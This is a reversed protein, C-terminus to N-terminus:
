DNAVEGKKSKKRIIYIVVGAAVVAVVAVLIIIDKLYSGSDDEAPIEEDDEDEDDPDEESDRNGGTTIGDFEDTFDDDEYEPLEPPTIEQNVPQGATGPLTHTIEEGVAVVDYSSVIIEDNLVYIGSYVPVDEPVDPFDAVTYTLSGYEGDIYCEFTSGTKKVTVEHWETVQSMETRTLGGELPQDGEPMWAGHNYRVPLYQGNIVGTLTTRPVTSDARWHDLYFILYNNEDVYWVVLGLRDEAETQKTVKMTASVIYNDRYPNVQIAFNMEDDKTDKVMEKTYTADGVLYGEETITWENFKMGSTIWDGVLVREYKKYGITNIEKIDLDLNYAYIGFETCTLGIGSIERGYVLEDNIYLSITDEIKEAKIKLSGALAVNEIEIEKLTLVPDRNQEEDEELYTSARVRAYLKGDKWVLGIRAYNDDDRVYPAIMLESLQEQNGLDIEVDLEITVNKDSIDSTGLLYSRKGLDASTEKAELTVRGQDFVWADKKNGATKWVNDQDDVVTIEDYPSYIAKSELGRATFKVNYGEYGIFYNQDTGKVRKSIIPETMDDLYVYFGISKKEVRITHFETIDFDDPLAYVNTGVPANSCDIWGSLVIEYKTTPSLVLGTQSRRITVDVFNHDDKYWALLGFGFVYDRPETYPKIEDAKFEAKVEYNQPLGNETRAVPNLTFGRNTDYGAINSGSIKYESVTRTGSKIQTTDFSISEDQNFIWVDQGNLVRYIFGKSEKWDRALAATNHTAYFDEIIADSFEAKLDQAMFGMAVTKPVANYYYASTSGVAVGNYQVTIRYFTATAGSNEFRVTLEHGEPHTPHRKAEGLATKLDFVTNEQQTNTTAYKSEGNFRGSIILQEFAYGDAQEEPTQLYAAANTLKFQVFIYNDEDVFWPIIGVMPNEVDNMETIKIKTTFEFAGIAIGKKTLHTAGELAYAGGFADVTVKDESVNWTGQEQVAPFWDSAESEAIIDTVTPEAAMVRTKNPALLLAFSLFLLFTLLAASGKKILKNTM